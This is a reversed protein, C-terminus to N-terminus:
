HKHRKLIHAELQEKSKFRRLCSKFTCEFEAEPCINIVTNIITRLSRIESADEENIENSSLIIDCEEGFLNLLRDLRAFLEGM